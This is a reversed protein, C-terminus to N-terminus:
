KTQQEQQRELMQAIEEHELAMKMFGNKRLRQARARHWAPTARPDDECQKKPEDEISM